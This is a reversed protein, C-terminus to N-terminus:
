RYPSAPGCAPCDAWVPVDNYYFHDYIMLNQHFYRGLTQPKLGGLYYIAELAGLHGTLGATPAIVANIPEAKFLAVTKGRADRKLQENYELCHYCATQFPVLIGVVLMPGAYLSQLWPTRTQLAAANTWKQIQRPPQDACLIFLDCGKMLGAIDQSSQVQLEQGSVEVHSNLRRLREVAREVKPRGIDEETYLLQRSLNSAEVRDFDVCHLAGLGSAVLSAALASGSGGLGLLTARAAKLRRQIEYRSPRPEVDIWSFYNASRSYRELEAPSIEQPLTAGVDEVFGSSVLSAIAEHVSAEDLGPIAKQLDAAITEPSRSGDMLGLLEWIVGDEDPIETSVGYQTTGILINHNELRIPQHLPKVRPLQM